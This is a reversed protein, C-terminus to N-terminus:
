NDSDLQAALFEEAATITDRLRQIENQIETSSFDKRFEKSGLNPDTTLNLNGDGDTYGRKRSTRKPQPFTVIKLISNEIRKRYIGLLSLVNRDSTLKEPVLKWNCTRLYLRLGLYARQKPVKESLLYRLWKSSERENTEVLAISLIWLFNLSKEALEIRDVRPSRYAADLDASFKASLSNLKELTKKSYINEGATNLSNEILNVIEQFTILDLASEQVDTSTM